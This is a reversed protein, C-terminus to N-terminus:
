LILAKYINNCRMLLTYHYSLTEEKREEYAQTWHVYHNETLQNKYYSKTTVYYVLTEFIFSYSYIKLYPRIALWKIAFGEKM